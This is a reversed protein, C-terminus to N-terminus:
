VTTYFMFVIPYKKYTRGEKTEKSKYIL